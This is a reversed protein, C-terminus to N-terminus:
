IKGKQNSNNLWPNFDASGITFSSINEKKFIRYCFLFDDGVEELSPLYLKELHLNKRLFSYGVIKLSPLSLEQLRINENLFGNGVEELLPLNLEKLSENYFIFNNGVRQLSPLNLHSIKRCRSLFNDGVERLSPLDLEELAINSYLFGNDVKKLNPLNLKKVDQGCGLFVKGAIELAPMNLEQISYVFALFNDGVEKINQNELKIIQNDKDLTIIVERNDQLIIKIEKGEEKRKIEIKEINSVADVFSDTIFEEYPRVEKKVLDLVFYNFIVYKDKDYRKVEYNDIIINNPCYYVNMMEQNYKYYKNDSARVYGELEFKGNPHQQVLGYYEGFSETLGEIINDLNNSFTSDPNNVHHNYRNKISLTHSEDRTFQISIVSTGYKDQRQPNPYDERKIEDVNKKVAFFVHCRDLRGGKFTCLKEGPAYYKKFSQIDEESKCEFLDYGADELLEKPTKIVKIKNEKEVDVLSYIFDKFENEKKQKIIDEYLDHTPEFNDLLLQLLLGETELLTPFYDRCFHAMKEGYKKKIIKLDQNMKDGDEVINYFIKFRKFM